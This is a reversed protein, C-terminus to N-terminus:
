AKILEGKKLLSLLKVNQEYSGHYDTIGNKLALKERYDYSSDIGIEKLGDVISGDFYTSNSLYEETTTQNIIKKKSTSNKKKSTTNKKESSVDRTVEMIEVNENQIEDAIVNEKSNDSVVETPAVEISSQSPTSLSFIPNERNGNEDKIELHLHNGYANGTQGMTGIIAGKEVYDGLNVNVSGYEMHAYLASKGNSQRIKVYNGYTALGSSSHDTYKVNKVVEEVIGSELAIIDCATCDASIIDLAQHDYSYENSVVENMTELVHEVLYIVDGRQFIYFVRRYIVNSIFVRM